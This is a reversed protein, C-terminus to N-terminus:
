TLIPAFGPIAALVLKRSARRKALCAVHCQLFSEIKAAGSREEVPFGDIAREGLDYEIRRLLLALSRPIPRRLDPM